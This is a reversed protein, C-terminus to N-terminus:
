DSGSSLEDCVRLLEEKSYPKYLIREVGLAKVRVIDKPDSRGTIIAIKTQPYMGKEQIMSLLDFGSLEPMQLDTLMVDPQWEELQSLAEKVNIATRVEYGSRELFIRTVKLFAGVDDVILVKRRNAM